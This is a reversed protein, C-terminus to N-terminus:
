LRHKDMLREYICRGNESLDCYSHLWHSIEFRKVIRRLRARFRDDCDIHDRYFIYHAEAIDFRDFM